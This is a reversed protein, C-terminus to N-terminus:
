KNIKFESRSGGLSLVFGTVNQNRDFIFKGFRYDVTFNTKSDPYIISQGKSSTNTNNEWTYILKGNEKKIEYTSNEDSTYKGIYHKFNNVDKIITSDTELNLYNSLDRYLNIAKNRFILSFRNFDVM